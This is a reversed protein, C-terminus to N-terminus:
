TINKNTICRVRYLYHLVFIRPYAHVHQLREKYYVM